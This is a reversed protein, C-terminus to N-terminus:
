FGFKKSVNQVYKIDTTSCLGGRGFPVLKMKQMKSLSELYSFLYWNSPIGKRNSASIKKFTHFKRDAILAPPTDSIAIFSYSIQM